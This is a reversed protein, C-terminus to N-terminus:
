NEARIRIGLNQCVEYITLLIVACLTYPSLAQVPNDLCLQLEILARGYQMRSPTVSHEEGVLLSKHELCICQVTLDCAKNSGMRRPIESIFTGFTALSKGQPLDPHFTAFFKRALIDAESHLPPRIDDKPKSIIPRHKPLRRLIQM